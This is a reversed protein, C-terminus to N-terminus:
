QPASGKSTGVRAARLMRDKIKWGNQMVSVVTDKPEESDLQFMAEHFNPNFKEGMPQIKEIGYKAFTKLLIDDTLKVGESLKTLDEEANRDVSADAAPVSELARQLNDAVEVMDKAFKSIAYTKAQELEVLHRKRANEADAMNYRLKTKLEEAKEVLEENKSLLEALQESEKTAEPSAESSAGAESAEAAASASADAPTAAAGGAGSEPGAAAMQQAAASSFSRREELCRARPIRATLAPSTRLRSSSSQSVVSQLPRRGYRALSSVLFSM